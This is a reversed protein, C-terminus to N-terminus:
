SILKESILNISRPYKHRSMPYEIDLTHIPAKIHTKESGVIKIEIGLIEIRFDSTHM